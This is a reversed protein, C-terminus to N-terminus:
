FRCPGPSGISAANMGVDEGHDQPRHCPHSQPIYVIAVSKKSGQVGALSQLEIGVGLCPMTWRSALLPMKARKQQQKTRDALCACAVLLRIASKEM